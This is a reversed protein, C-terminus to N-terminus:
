GTVGRPPGATHGDTTSDSVIIEYNKYPFDYNSILGSTELLSLSSKISRYDKIGTAMVIAGKLAALGVRIKYQSESVRLPEIRNRDIRYSAILDRLELAERQSTKNKNINIRTRTQQNEAELVTIGKSKLFPRMYALYAKNAEQGFMGKAYKGHKKVVFERFLEETTIDIPWDPRIKDKGIPM